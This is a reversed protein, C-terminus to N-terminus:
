RHTFNEHKHFDKEIKIRKFGLKEYFNRAPRNSGQTAIKLKKFGKDRCEYICTEVLKRGVGQGQYINSVAIIEIKNNHLSCFGIVNYMHHLAVFVTSVQFARRIRKEYIEQAVKFPIKPDTYLRSHRLESQGIQIIGNLHEDRGRRIQIDDSFKPIDLEYSHLTGIFDFGDAIAKDISNTDKYDLRRLTLNM